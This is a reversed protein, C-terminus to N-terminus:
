IEIISHQRTAPKTLREIGRRRRVTDQHRPREFVDRAHCRREIAHRHEAHRIVESGQLSHVSGRADPVRTTATAPM